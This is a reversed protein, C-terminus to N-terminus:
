ARRARLRAFAIRRGRELVLVGGLLLVGAVIFVISRDILSWSYEFYRSVLDLGFFILALNILWEQNRVFGVVVTGVIMLFLLINFLIPYAIDDGVALYIPLYAATLLLLSACGEFPMSQWRIHHTLRWTAQAALALLTVAVSTHLLWWFDGILVQDRVFRAGRYEFDDFVGRFTLLYLTGFVVILGLIDYAATYFKTREVLDQFRGLNYLLLGMVLFMGLFLVLSNSDDDIWEWTWFGVSALFLGVALFLLSQSRTVYALPLVGLFWYSFLKPDNVPFNYAQAVLHIGAGFLLAGLLFLASGVRQYGRLYKLWYGIGYALSIAVFILFLKVGRPLEGWNSAIFAVVGAGILIVGLVALVSVLRNFRATDSFPQPLGGYGSRLNEAQERTVLGQEEWGQIESAM